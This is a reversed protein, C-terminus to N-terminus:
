GIGVACALRGAAGHLFYGFGRTGGADSSLHGDGSGVVKLTEDDSGSLARQGDPLVACSNVLDGHGELMHPCTDMELDWVKLTKDGSGSLARRGDPLVACSTVGNGHGELTQLCTGTELDWVKLTHDDSGSLARRGDPLVTCSAVRGGHEALTQLCTGTELDWVKLMHDDSGSLARRGDPLVACSSVLGRHGELTQLCIGTELDWVKLTHDDSGSLARRGDPLVACSSIWARHGELTQLCTGTELDWVKLTKDGSGSLARPDDWLVACTAVYSKHGELTHLCTGTELDWVKLTKDGSGSLARRGDPLVACSTVASEHGALTRLLSGGPPTLSPHTPLLSAPCGSARPRGTQAVLAQIEVQDFGLLRGRLQSALQSTDKALVHASLRLAGHLLDTLSATHGIDEASSAEPRAAPQKPKTTALLKCDAMAANVDTADLRAQLWRLDFVLARADSDRDAKILHHILHGYFYGDDSRPLRLGQEPIEITNEDDALQRQYADVLRVHLEQDRGRTRGRVYDRQLDHLRIARNPSPGKATLLELRVLRTLLDDAHRGHLGAADWLVRIAPEPIVADEPFVALEEYREIEIPQFATLGVQISRMVSRQPDEPDLELFEIDADRLAGLLSSWDLGEAKRRGCIALALPLGGCERATDRAAQPLASDPPLGAAQALFRLDVPPHLLDVRHTCESPLLSTDRTTILVRGDPGVVDFKAAHDAHWVDDLVILVARDALLRKLHNQAAPLDEFAPRTHEIWEAVDAMRAMLHSAAQEQAVQGIVLWFVGDTFREAVEPDRTAHAALITKGVGGMGHVGVRWPRGTIGM